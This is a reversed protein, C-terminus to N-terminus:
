RRRCYFEHLVPRAGPASVHVRESLEAYRDRWHRESLRRTAETTNAM